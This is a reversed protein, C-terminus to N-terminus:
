RLVIRVEPLLQALDIIQVHRAPGETFERVTTELNGFRELFLQRASVAGRDLAWGATSRSGRLFRLPQSGAVYLEARRGSTDAALNVLDPLGRAQADFEAVRRDTELDFLGPRNM